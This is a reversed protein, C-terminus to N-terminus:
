AKPRFLWPQIRFVEIGQYRHDERWSMLKGDFSISIGNLGLAILNVGDFGADIGIEININFFLFFEVFPNIEKIFFFISFCLFCQM